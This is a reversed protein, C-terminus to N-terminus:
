VVMRSFHFALLFTKITKTPSQKPTGAGGGGRGPDLALLQSHSQQFGNEQSSAVGM